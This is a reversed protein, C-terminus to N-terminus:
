RGSIIWLCTKSARSGFGIGFGVMERCRVAVRVAQIVALRRMPKRKNKSGLVWWLFRRFWRVSNSFDKWLRGRSSGILSLNQVFAM